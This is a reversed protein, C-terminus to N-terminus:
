EESHQELYELGKPTISYKQENNESLLNQDIMDRIKERLSLGLCSMDKEVHVLYRDLTILNSYTNGKEKRLFFFKLIKNEM